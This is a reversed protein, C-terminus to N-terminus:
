MLPCTMWWGSAASDTDIFAFFSEMGTLSFINRIAPMVNGLYLKRGGAALRKQTALLVGLGASGMYSVDRFDLLFDGRVKELQQRLDAANEATIRGTLRIRDREWRITLGTATIETGPEAAEECAWGAPEDRSGSPLIIHINEDTNEIVRISIGEPVQIGSRRLVGAPDRLFEERFPRDLCTRAIIDQLPNKEM